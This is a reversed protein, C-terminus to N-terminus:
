AFLSRKRDALRRVSRRGLKRSGIAIRWLLPAKEPMKRAFAYTDRNIPYCSLSALAAVQAFDDITFGWGPNTSLAFRLGARDTILQGTEGICSVYFEVVAALHHFCCCFSTPNNDVIFDFSPPVPLAEGSYKNHVIVQYNSLGLEAGLRAEADVVTTGVIEKARAALRHALGSNGAGIHLIRKGRLDFGALYDEIRLQDPSTKRDTWDRWEEADMIGPAGQAGCDFPLNPFRRNHLEALSEMDVM